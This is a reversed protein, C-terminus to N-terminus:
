KFNAYHLSIELIHNILQERASDPLQSMHRHLGQGLRGVAKHKDAMEATKDNLEKATLQAKQEDGSDVADAHKRAVPDIEALMNDLSRCYFSVMDSYEEAAITEGSELREAYLEAQREQRAGSSCSCLTLLVCILLYKFQTM